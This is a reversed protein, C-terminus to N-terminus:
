LIDANKIYNIYVDFTALRPLTGSEVDQELSKMLDGLKKSPPLDFEKMLANGLGKPLASPVADEERLERIRKELDNVKERHWFKKDEHKTTVDARALDLINDLNDLIQEGLRRVASDTWITTYSEVKGLNRILFKIHKTEDSSFFGTRRSADSFLRTSVIEHGHFSIKDGDDAFTKVKGVDHFLAAWRVIINPKTQLVVQITHPWLEKHGQGGFGVIEEVEPFFHELIGDVRLQDLGRDPRSSLMVLDWLKRFNLEATIPDSENIFGVLDSDIVGSVRAAAILFDQILIQEV